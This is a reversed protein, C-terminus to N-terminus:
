YQGAYKTGIQFLTIITNSILPTCYEDDDDLDALEQRLRAAESELDRKLRALDDPQTPYDDVEEEVPRSPTNYQSYSQRARKRDSGGGGGGSEEDAIKKFNRYFADVIDGRLSQLAERHTEDNISLFKRVDTLFLDTDVNSQTPEQAKLALVVLTYAKRELVALDKRKIGHSGGSPKGRPM